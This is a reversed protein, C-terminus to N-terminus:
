ELLNLSISDYIYTSSRTFYRANKNSNISVQTNKVSKQFFMLFFRDLPLRTTGHPHNPYVYMVFKIDEM